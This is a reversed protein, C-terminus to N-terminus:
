AQMGKLRGIRENLSRQFEEETMNPDKLKTFTDCPLSPCQGCTSYGRQKTACDYIPCVPLGFQSAWFPKGESAACGQCTAGLFGCDRCVLGCVTIQSMTDESEPGDDAM